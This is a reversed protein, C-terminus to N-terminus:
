PIRHGRIETADNAQNFVACDIGRGPNCMARRELVYHRVKFGESTGFRADEFGDHIDRHRSPDYGECRGHKTTTRRVHIDM